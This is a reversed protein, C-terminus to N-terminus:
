NIFLITEILITYIISLAIYALPPYFFHRSLKYKNLLNSTIATAVLALLFAVFLPPLYIGFVYFESPIFRMFFVGGEM